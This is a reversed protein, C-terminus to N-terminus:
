KHIVGYHKALYCLSGHIAGFGAAVGIAVSAVLVIRNTVDM